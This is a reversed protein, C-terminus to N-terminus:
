RRITTRYQMAKKLPNIILSLPTRFEHSIYTFMSSQKEAIEKEKTIELESIKIKYKLQEKNKSYKSLALFNSNM